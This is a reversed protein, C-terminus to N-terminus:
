PIQEIQSRVFNVDPRKEPTVDVCPALIEAWHGPVKQISSKDQSGTLLFSIVRGFAYVDASPHAPAGEIQEPPAWPLTHAGQFTFGTVPNNTLKSIGFDAVKWTDDCRLVNQPKIDRHVIDNEHLATLADLAALAIEKVTQDDLPVRQDDPINGGVLDWLSGGDAFETVLAYTGGERFIDRVELIHQNPIQKLREYIDIERRLAAEDVKTGETAVRKIAVITCTQTDLGKYVVAM